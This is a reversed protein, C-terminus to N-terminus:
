PLSYMESQCYIASWLLSGHTGVCVQDNDPMLVFAIKHDRSGQASTGISMDGREPVCCSSRIGAGGSGPEFTGLLPRTYPAVYQM